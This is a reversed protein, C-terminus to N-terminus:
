YNEPNTIDVDAAAASSKKSVPRNSSKYNTFYTRLYKRLRIQLDRSTIDDGYMGLAVNDWFGAAARLRDKMPHTSFENLVIYFIDSFPQFWEQKYIEINKNNNNTDMKSLKLTWKPCTPTDMKSLKTPAIDYLFQDRIQRYLPTTQRYLGRTVIYNLGELELIYRRVSGYPIRSFDALYQLSAGCWGTEPNEPRVSLQYISDLIVYQSDSINLHAKLAHHITTYALSM